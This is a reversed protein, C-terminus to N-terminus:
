KDFVQRKHNMKKHGLFEKGFWFDCLNKERIREELIRVKYKQDIICKLNIKHYSTLHLNLDMKKRKASSHGINWSWENLVIKWQNAKISGTNFILQGYTRTGKEPSKQETARYTQRKLLVM